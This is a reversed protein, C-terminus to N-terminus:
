PQQKTWTNDQRTYTGSGGTSGDLYKTRLDGVFPPYESSIAIGNSNFTVSNLGSSAFAYDAIATLSAPLDISTLSTCNEFACVDITALNAPLTVSSLGTCWNFTHMGTSSLNTCQSLDASALNECGFFVSEGITTL